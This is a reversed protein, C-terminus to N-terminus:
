LATEISHAIASLWLFGLGLLALGVVLCVVGPGTSLLWSTPSAGFGRGMVLAVFPLASLLHATARASSLESVVVARTASKARLVKVLAQLSREFGTGTTASIQWCAALMQLEDSHWQRARSALVESVNLGLLEVSGLEVFRSHESAAVQWAQTAPQGSRLEDLLAECLTLVDTQLKRDEQKKTRRRWSVVITGGTALLLLVLGPPLDRLAHGFIQGGFILWGCIMCAVFVAEGSRLVQPRAGDLFWLWAALAAFVVAVVLSNV